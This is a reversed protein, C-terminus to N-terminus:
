GAPSWWWAMKRAERAPARIRRLGSGQWQPLQEPCGGAWHWGVALHSPTLLPFPHPLPIWMSPPRAPPSPTLDQLRWLRLKKQVTPFLSAPPLAQPQGGGQGLRAATVEPIFHPGKVPPDCLFGIACLVETTFKSFLERNAHHGAGRQENGNHDLTGMPMAPHSPHRMKGTHPPLLHPSTVCGPSRMM